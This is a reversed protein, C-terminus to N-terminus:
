RHQPRQQIHRLGQVTACIEALTTRSPLNEQTIAGSPNFPARGYHGTFEMILEVLRVIAEDHTLKGTRILRLYEAAVSTLALGISDLYVHNGDFIGELRGPGTCADECCKYEVTNTNQSGLPM